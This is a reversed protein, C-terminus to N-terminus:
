GPAVFAEDVVEQRDDGVSFGTEATHQVGEFQHLVHDSGARRHMESSWSAATFFHPWM